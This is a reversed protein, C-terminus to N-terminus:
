SHIDSKSSRARGIDVSKHITVIIWVHRYFFSHHKYSSTPPQSQQISQLQGAPWIALRGNPLHRSFPQLVFLRLLVSHLLPSLTRKQCNNTNTKYTKLSKFPSYRACVFPLTTKLPVKKFASNLLMPELWRKQILIM